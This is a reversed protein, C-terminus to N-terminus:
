RKCGFWVCAAVPLGIGVSALVDWIGDGVLGLVLGVLSVLGLAIPMGWLRWDFPRPRRHRRSM